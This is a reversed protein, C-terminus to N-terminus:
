VGATGANLEHNNIRVIFKCYAGFANDQTRMIGMLKVQRTSTTASVATDDLVWSSVYGNNTGAKLNCNKGIDAATFNTSGSGSFEQCVFLVDPDDVVMVYYAQTKTAPIVTVNLNAPDGYMAGEVTGGMSVIVGRVPQSDGAVAITVASTGNADAANTLTKVPDGIAYASNDTSPIYYVNGMGNYPSGGMYKYPSLGQPRNVNAM